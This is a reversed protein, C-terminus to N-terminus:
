VRRGTGGGAGRFRGADATVPAALMGCVMLTLATKTVTATYKMTNELYFILLFAEKRQTM